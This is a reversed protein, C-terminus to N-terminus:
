DSKAKVACYNKGAKCLLPKCAWHGQNQPPSVIFECYKSTSKNQKASPSKAKYIEMALSAATCSLARSQLKKSADCSGAGPM